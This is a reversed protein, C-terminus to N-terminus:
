GVPPAIARAVVAAARRAVAGGDGHPKPLTISKALGLIADMDAERIESSDPKDPSSLAGASRIAQAAIGLRDSVQQNNGGPQRDLQAVTDELRTRLDNLGDGRSGEQVAAAKAPWRAAILKGAVTGYATLLKLRDDEILDSSAAIADRLKELAETATEPRTANRVAAWPQGFLAEALGTGKEAVTDFRELALLLHDFETVPNGDHQGSPWCLRGDKVRAKTLDFDKPAVDAVLLYGSGQETLANGILAAVEQEVQNYGLLSGFSDYVTESVKMAAGVAPNALATGVTGVVNLLTKVLDDGPVSFLGTYLSLNGDNTPTPRVITIDRLEIWASKGTDNIGAGQLRKRIVDPGISFPISRREGGTQFEALCVCLPLRETAFHRADVLHIGSLRLGFYTTGAEFKDGSVRTPFRDNEVGGKALMDAVKRETPASKAGKWWGAIREILDM